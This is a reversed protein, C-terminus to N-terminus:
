LRLSWFADTSSRHVASAFRSPRSHFGYNNPEYVVAIAEELEFETGEIYNSFYAEFFPLYTYRPDRPERVPRNQPASERLGTRM